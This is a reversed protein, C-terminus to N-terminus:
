LSYFLFCSGYFGRNNYYWSVFKVRYKQQLQYGIGISLHVKTSLAYEMNLNIAPELQLIKADQNSGNIVDFGVYGSATVDSTTSESYTGLIYNEYTAHILNETETRNILFEPNLTISPYLRLKELAMLDYGVGFSIKFYNSSGSFTFDRTTKGEDGYGFEHYLVTNTENIKYRWHSVGLSAILRLKNKIALGQITFDHGYLVYDPKSYFSSAGKGCPCGSEDGLLTETNLQYGVGIRYNWTRESSENQTFSSFCFILLYIALLTHKIQFCALM